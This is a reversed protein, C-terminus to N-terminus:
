GERTSRLGVSMDTNPEGSECTRDTGGCKELRSLSSLFEIYEPFFRELWWRPMHQFYSGLAVDKSVDKGAVKRIM